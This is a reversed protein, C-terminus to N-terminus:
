GAWRQFLPDARIWLSRTPTRLDRRHYREAWFRGSRRLLKNVARAVRIELGMVGRALVRKDTAEVILHLHTEQITFHVVQFGTGVGVGAAAQEELKKRQKLLATKVARSLLESRLSPVARRVSVTVHVPDGKRHSARARHPAPRRASAPKRPGGAGTRAGGHTRVRLDLSTQRNLIPRQPKSM